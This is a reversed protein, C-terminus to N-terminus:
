IDFCQLLVNHSLSILLVTLYIIQNLKLEYKGSWLYFIVSANGSVPNTAIEILNIGKSELALKAHLCPSTGHQDSAHVAAFVLVCTVAIRLVIHKLM